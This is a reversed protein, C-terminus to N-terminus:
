RPTAAAAEAAPGLLAAVAAAAASDAAARLAEQRRRAETLEARHLLLRGTRWWPPGAHGPPVPAPADRDADLLGACVAFGAEVAAAATRWAQAEPAAAAFGAAALSQRAAPGLPAEAVTAIRGPRLEIGARRAQAALADVLGADGEAALAAGGVPETAPLAACVVVSRARPAWFGATAAAEAAGRGSVVVGLTAAGASCTWATRAPGAPVSRWRLDRRRLEALVAHAEVHLACCILGLLWRDPVPPITGSGTM